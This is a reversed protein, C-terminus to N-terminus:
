RDERWDDESVQREPTYEWQLRERKTLPYPKPKVAQTSLALFRERDHDM